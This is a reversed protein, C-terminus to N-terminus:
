QEGLILLKLIILVFGMDLTQRCVTSIHNGLVRGIVDGM